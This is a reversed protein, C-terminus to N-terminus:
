ARLVEWAADALERGVGTPLTRNHGALWHGCYSETPGLWLAHLLAPDLERLAGYGAHLRWWRLVAKFFGRNQEALRDGAGAGSPRERLLLSAADRHASVWRLHYRVAGNVGSEADDSEQLAEIFGAQYDALADLFAEAHLAQKDPFHHYIAGVSVGADRRIDELRTALVGNRVFTRTAADLIQAHLTLQHSLIDNQFVPSTSAHVSGTRSEEEHEVPM